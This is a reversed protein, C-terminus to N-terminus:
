KNKIQVAINALHQAIEKNTKVLEEQSAAIRKVSKVMAVFLVITVISIFLYIVFGYVYALGTLM